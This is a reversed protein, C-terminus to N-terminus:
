CNVISFGTIGLSPAGSIGSFCGSEIGFIDWNDDLLGLSHTWFRLEANVLWRCLDVVDVCESDVVSLLRVRASPLRASLHSILLYERKFM